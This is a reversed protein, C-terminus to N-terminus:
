ALLQKTSVETQGKPPKKTKEKDSSTATSNSTLTQALFSTPSGSSQTANQQLNLGMNGQMSFFPLDSKIQFSNVPFLHLPTLLYGIAGLSMKLFELVLSGLPM